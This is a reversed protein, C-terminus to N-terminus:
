PVDEMRELTQASPELAFDATIASQLTQWAEETGSGRVRVTEPAPFGDRTWRCSVWVQPEQIGLAAAKDSIYAATQRAIIDKRVEESDEAGAWLSEGSFFGGTQLAQGLATGRLATVPSLVALLLLFGGATRVLKRSFGAPCLADALAAIMAACTISLLWSRIGEM